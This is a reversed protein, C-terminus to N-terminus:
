ESKAKETVYELTVKLGDSGPTSVELASKEQWGARTKLWFCVAWAEGEMAKKYAVQGVQANAMDMSTDLERRFHKRLTKPDIGDTGLCRAISEQNMGCAAMARVTNRDAETPEYEPKGPGRHEEPEPM